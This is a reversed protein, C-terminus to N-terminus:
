IRENKNDKMYRYLEEAILKHAKVTPHSTAKDLMGVNQLAIIEKPLFQNKGFLNLFPFSARPIEIGNTTCLFNLLDNQQSNINYYNTSDFDFSYSQFSNVFLHNINLYKLYGDLMALSVRLRDLEFENSFFHKTYYKFEESLGANDKGGL